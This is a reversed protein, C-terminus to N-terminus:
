YKCMNVIFKNIKAKSYSSFLTIIGGNNNVCKCAKYFTKGTYMCFEGRIHVGFYDCIPYLVKNPINSYRKILEGDKLVIVGNPDFITNFKVAWKNFIFNEM